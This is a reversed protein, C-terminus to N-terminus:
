REEFGYGYGLRTVINKGYAGLKKRLRTINVDIARDVVFVDNGWVLNLIDERSFIHNRQLLFMKLMEFETKTFPVRGGDVTVSKQVIDIALGKYEIKDPVAVITTATRALVAKVRAIVQKISFPKSIYDDAGLSFGTLTDNESDKATLFIIPIKTLEASKKIHNALQFGSMQGMMVDCLLLDFLKLEKKLAEEGSYAVDIEYGENELNFKLIECLDEEDDVVLIRYKSMTDKNKAFNSM